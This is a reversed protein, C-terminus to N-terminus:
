PFQYKVGGYIIRGSLSPIFQTNTRELVNDIGFQLTLSSSVKQTLTVNWLAYGPVYENDADLIGNGNMDGFGYRGRIIGRLTGTFGLEKNDYSINVTGSHKSRNLLGGYESEQVARIRGTSGIKSIRGARIDELVHEDKAELYQYGLQLSFVGGLKTKIKAEVGQTYIHDLNFYTFLNQGNTKVAIPAADILDRVNNRFVNLSASMFEWPTVEIGANFAVSQEPRIQEIRSPDILVAQVQGTQQLLAFADRIGVTGFVSYGVSPNTFDLYLQQFTPAKFGSGVSGRIRLWEVPTVLMGLKPSVRAAYDSHSDFRFAAILDIFAAPLWEEQAYIFSSNATKKGGAIRDAQVSELTLGSGGTLIHSEGFVVKAQVEAKHLNQDFSSEKYSGGQQYTLSSETFYRTSYLKGTLKVTSSLQHVISPAISWDLLSSQDNLQIVTNNQTLQATNTQKEVFVRGSVALRTNDNFSYQLRPAFTYDTYHPATQSSTAPTLDYGSSSTRNFFGTAGFQEDTLEVNADLLVTNHTGYRSRLTLALPESPPQTIMNVVGALAESGYLSSSPGKVIEVQSINGVNFRTLDLTGAKRGIMPEGDVLILAYAADFGQIQIGTGHDHVIALGTQEALVNDLTVYGAKQIEKGTVVDTTIPTATLQKETRTGTVVILPLEITQETLTVTLDTIENAKVLITQIVSHYGVRSIVIRYTGEQVSNFVFFGNETTTTGRSSNDLVVNTHELPLGEQNQVRGRISGSLEQSYLPFMTTGMALLGLMISPKM